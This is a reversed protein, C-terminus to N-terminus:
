GEKKVMVKPKDIEKTDILYKSNDMVTENTLTITCDKDGNILAEWRANTLSKEVTTKLSRAGTGLSLAHAAVADIYGDTWNLNIDIDNLSEKFSELIGKKSLLIEKLSDITHGSLQSIISFRGLLEIPILGYKSLDDITLVGYSIDEKKSNDITQFGMTGGGYGKNQKEKVVDTFAGTAFITLKSTNFKVTKNHYPVSYTTGDMFPLLSNLVGKGSVDSNSSSGKKDIEDFVVISEEAKAVDGNTKTLLMSLFDEIKAGIYGQMTIQTTDIIQVPTGLYEGVRELLLTKGSGTPGVLLCSLKDKPDKVIKNMFITQIVARKANEQGIVKEDLFKKMDNVDIRSSIETKSEAKVEVKKPDVHVINQDYTKAVTVINNKERDRIVKIEKKMDDLNDLSLIKEYDEIMVMLFDAAAEVADDSYEENDDFDLYLATYMDILKDIFDRMQEIDNIGLIADYTDNFLSIIESGNNMNNSDFSKHQNNISAGSADYQVMNSYIGDLIKRMDEYNTQKLLNEFYEYPMMIINDNYDDIVQLMSEKDDDSMGSFDLQFNDEYGDNLKQSISDLDYSCIKICDKDIIHFGIHVERAIKSFYNAKAVELSDNPSMALLKEKSIVYAVSDAQDHYMIDGDTSMIYPQSSSDIFIPQEGEISDDLNGELLCTPRFLYIGPLILSRNMLVGYYKDEM